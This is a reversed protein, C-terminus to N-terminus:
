MRTGVFTAGAALPAPTGSYSLTGTWQGTQIKDIKHDANTDVAKATGVLGFELASADISDIKSYIAAAGFGLGANCATEFVTPGLSFGLNDYM